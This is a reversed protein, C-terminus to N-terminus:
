NSGTCLSRGASQLGRFGVARDATCGGLCSQSWDTSLLYWIIPPPVMAVGFDESPTKPLLICFAHTVQYSLAPIKMVVCLPGRIM